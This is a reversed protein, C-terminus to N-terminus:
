QLYVMISVSFVRVLRMGCHFVQQTPNMSKLLTKTYGTDGGYFEHWSETGTERQSVVNM